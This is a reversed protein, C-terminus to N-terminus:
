KESVEVVVSKDTSATLMAALILSAGVLQHSTMYENLLVYSFTSAAVPELLFIVAAVAPSVYRQGFVQLAFAMDSCVIALYTILLLSNFDVSVYGNFVIDPVVFMLAPTMEFLTFILPDSSCYKGVLVIQAAWMFSGLLVLLDGINFGSTPTTLMYLGLLSMILTAGLRYSYKRRVMGAYMHVFVVSLGTIFASNSATTYKTGWGQLWLGLAYALGAMMGGKVSSFKLKGGWYAYILYPTLGTIAILSRVWTYTYENTSEMVTKIAPFSTGWLVSVLVLSTLGKIRGDRFVM